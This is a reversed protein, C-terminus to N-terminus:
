PPARPWDKWVIMMFHALARVTKEDPHRPLIIHGLEPHISGSILLDNAFVGGGIGTSVTVYVLHRCNPREAVESLAAAGVDTQLVSVPVGFESGLDTVFNYDRWGIKPTNLIRGRDTHTPDVVVPGFTGIGIGKIHGDAVNENICRKVAAMTEHASRTQITSIVCNQYSHGVGVVFKTGGGEIAAYIHKTNKSM